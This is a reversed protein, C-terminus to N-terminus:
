SAPSAPRARTLEHESEALPRSTHLRISGPASPDLEACTAPLASVCYDASATYVVSDNTHVVLAGGNNKGALVPAAGIVLIALAGLLIRKAM